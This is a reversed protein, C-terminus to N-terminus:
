IFRQRNGSLRDSHSFFSLTGEYVGNVLQLVVRHCISTAKRHIRLLDPVDNSAPLLETVQNIRLVHSAELPCRLGRSQSTHQPSRKAVDSCDSRWGTYTGAPAQYGHTIRQTQVSNRQRPRPLGVVCRPAYSREAASPCPFRIAEPTAGWGQRLAPLERRPWKLRTLQARGSQAPQRLDLGPQLGTEDRRVAM